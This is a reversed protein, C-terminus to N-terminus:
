EVPEDQAAALRRALDYLIRRVSSPHLGTQEAIEALSCGQRKLELLKHHAPPCLAMMQDWLDNAQALESPQDADADPQDDGHAADLSQQRQVAARNQRSRDIFRNRTAKVLFARLQASNSFRYGGERFRRLVDAWVSQVVDVSDFKPRMNPPLMRRVVVRLYPEYARFVEEAAADDGCGLKDLLQDLADAQMSVSM